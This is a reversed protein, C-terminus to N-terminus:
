NGGPALVEVYKEATAWETGIIVPEGGKTGDKVHLLLRALPHVTSPLKALEEKDKGDVADTGRAGPPLRRRFLLGSFNAPEKTAIVKYLDLGYPKTVHVLFPLPFPTRSPEVRNPAATDNPTGEPPYIPFVGDRGIRVVTVFVPVNGFSTNQVYLRIFDGDRLRLTGDTNIDKRVEKVELNGTLNNRKATVAEAVLKVNITQNRDDARKLYEALYRAKWEDFLVEAIAEAANADAPFESSLLDGNKAQVWIFERRPKPDGDLPALVDKRTKRDVLVEKGTAPDLTGARRVRVHYNEKTVAKGTDDVTGLMRYAKLEAPLEVDEFLVYLPNPGFARELVVARAAQLEDPKIREAGPGELEATCSSTQVDVVRAEGLKNRPDRVSTGRCYLAYRSGEAEGQVFGVPLTVMKGDVGQVVLYQEGPVAAGALLLKTSEGELQPIQGSSIDTSLSEFLDKYTTQQTARIMRRALHYTFISAETGAQPCYAVQHNRCASIFVYGEAIARDRDFDSFSGKTGVEGRAGLGPKPAPIPGDIAEEWPRGKEELDGKSGNGSHCSDFLVTINGEVKGDSSKMKEKLARLLERVEDSRMNDRYGAPGTGSTYNATVLSGRLGGFADADPVLQGHGSFYFVVVDGRGAGEILHGRFAGDIASKTAEGETLMRIDGSAFGFRSLLVQRM